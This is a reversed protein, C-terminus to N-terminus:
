WLNLSFIITCIFNKMYKRDIHEDEPKLTYVHQLKYEVDM